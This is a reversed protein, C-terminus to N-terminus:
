SPKQKTKATKKITIFHVHCLSVRKAMELRATRCREACERHAPKVLMQRCRWTMERFLSETGTAYDRGRERELGQGTEMLRVERHVEYVHIM